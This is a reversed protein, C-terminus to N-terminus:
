SSKARELCVAHTLECFFPDNVLEEVNVHLRHRWNPHEDVTGPVNIQNTAAVIDELNMMMLAAPSRALFRHVAAILTKVGEATPAIAFGEEILGQDVLAALLLERERVRQTRRAELDERCAILGIDALMQLDMGMWFAALTPLDHSAPTALSLARYTEPRHFLGDAHRQFHLLHYSLIGEAEMRERFGEPVTGLDEGVILCRNRQSELALIAFLDGMPYRMYAGSRGDKGHPIWFMHQLWMIHDIRMAGANRMNARLMDIYPAYATERLRIPDFPPMGWEQGAPAIPDPPAGFNIGPVFVDADIWADAGGPAVGVALDRYLGIDMGDVVCRSAVAALQREAEWQLYIHFTVREDHTRVFERCPETDPRRYEEPWQDATCGKFHEQLTEFEAFRRLREGGAEEYADFATRRDSGCGSPHAAQFSNFLCTMAELKLATVDGYAVQDGASVAHQYANLGSQSFRERLAECAAFEPVATVDIYLPNLFLRSSPSYPSAREPCGPFLAHLPSLGVAAGGLKATQASLLALDGFDGIGWDSKSRLAYLQCAVGWVRRHEKAMWDPRYASPPAAIVRSSAQHAATEVRLRHYGCAMDHPLALRLRRYRTTDITREGVVPLDAVTAQGSATQGNEFLVTWDLAAMASDIPLTVTVMPEPSHGGVRLVTVPELLEKWPDDLLRSLSDAVEAETAAPFGMAALLTQCTEDSSEHFNGYVDWYSPEIGVLGALREIDEHLAM